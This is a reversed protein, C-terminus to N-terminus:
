GCTIRAIAGVADHLVNLRDGRYDLTMPDNLGLARVSAAGAAIRAAEVHAPTAPQGVLGSAAEANCTLSPAAAPPQAACASLLLLLSLPPLLRM